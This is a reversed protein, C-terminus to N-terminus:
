HADHAETKTIAARLGEYRCPRSCAPLLYIDVGAYAHEDSGGESKWGRREFGCQRPKM